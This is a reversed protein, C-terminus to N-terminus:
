RAFNVYCHVSAALVNIFWELYWPYWESWIKKHLENVHDGKIQFLNLYYLHGLLHDNSFWWREMQIQIATAITIRVLLSLLSPRRRGM